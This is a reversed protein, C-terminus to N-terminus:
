NSETRVIWREPEVQIKEEIIDDRLSAQQIFNTLGNAFNKSSRVFGINSITQDRFGEREASIDLMTIKESERSGKLSVDFFSKKDTLLHTQPRYGLINILKESVTISVDFMDSFAIVEAAMASRTFRKCKYSKLSLKVTEQSSYAMFFIHGLQSSLDENNAFSSDSFGFVKISNKDPNRIKLRVSDDVAYKIM